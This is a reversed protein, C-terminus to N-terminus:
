SVGNAKNWSGQEKRIVVIQGIHYANHITLHTLDPAWRELTSPDAQEVADMWDALTQDYRALTRSWVADGRTFTDDNSGEVPAVEEGRFRNLYRENYFDLHRVIEIISNMGDRDSKAHVQEESLDAAASAMSTFWGNDNRCAKFQNLLIEKGTM